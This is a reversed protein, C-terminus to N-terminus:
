TQSRTPRALRAGVGGGLLIGGLAFLVLSTNDRIERVLMPAGAVAFLAVGAFTVMAGVVILADSARRAWDVRVMLAAAIVLMAILALFTPRDKLTHFHAALGITTGATGGIVALAADRVVTERSPHPISLRRRPTQAPVAAAVAVPAAVPEKAAEV